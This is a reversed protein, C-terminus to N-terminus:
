RQAGHDPPPSAASVLLAGGGAGLGLGVVVGVIAAPLTVATAERAPGPASPDARVDAQAQAVAGSVVTLLGGVAVLVVGGITDAPAGDNVGTDRTSRDTAAATTAAGPASATTATATSTPVPMTTTSTMSAVSLVRLRAVFAAPLVAGGLLHELTTTAPVEAVAAGSGDFLRAAVGVRRGARVVEVTVLGSARASGILQRVCAATAICDPTVQGTRGLELPSLGATRVESDIRTAITAADDDSLGVSTQSVVVAPGTSALAGLLALAVIV